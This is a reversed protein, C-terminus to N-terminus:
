FSLNEALSENLVKIVSKYRSKLPLVTYMKKNLELYTNDFNFKNEKNM